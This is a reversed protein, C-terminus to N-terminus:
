SVGEEARDCLGLLDLEEDFPDPEAGSLADRFAALELQVLAHETAGAEILRVRRRDVREHLEAERDHFLRQEAWKGGERNWCDRAPCAVVMVGGAGGRLLTEVVSSHLSGACGVPLVPAEDFRDRAAIGGAGRTCGVLVVDRAGPRKAALFARAEVLQDRGTRGPPGVGMPACSGACIGCSVCLAPDVRAALGTRGDTREVMTIAQYPCDHVCQECGTCLRENVMSPEPRKESRPRTLLPVLVLVGVIATGALWVSWAPMAQSIPLWFLFFADIPASGPVRFLDAEPALAVPWIVSAAVLLAVVSWTVARPPLLVPRAVRAVHLWLLVGLGIPLAVHLFLNMFFFASGVPREGVFTRGIPESLIPLVDLLRAGEMALLQAQVDWVMVYGTWGCVMFVATLIVGTVWALSRKGWSRGQVFMRLMHVLIAVVAADSAFRHLSRIWRGLWVQDQIREMSAYPSGVRYFLLLYLGTIILVLLLAVVLAGSHYFPNYRSGYLRNFAADVRNLASRSYRVTPELVRTM